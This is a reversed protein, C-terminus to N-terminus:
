QKIVSVVVVAVVEVVVVMSLVCGYGRRCGRCGRWSIRNNKFFIDEGVRGGPHAM